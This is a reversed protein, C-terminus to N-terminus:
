HYDASLRILVDLGSGNKYVATVVVNGRADAASTADFFHTYAVDQDPRVEYPEARPVAGGPGVYATTFYHVRVLAAGKPLEVDVRCTNACAEHTCPQTLARECRVVPGLVSGSAIAGSDTVASLAFFALLYTQLMFEVM